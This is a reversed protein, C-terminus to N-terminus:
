SFCLFFLIFDLNYHMCSVKDSKESLTILHSQLPQQTKNSPLQLANAVKLSLLARLQAKNNLKRSPNAMPRAKIPGRLVMLEVM